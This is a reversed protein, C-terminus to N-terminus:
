FPKPIAAVLLDPTLNLQKKNSPKQAAIMKM